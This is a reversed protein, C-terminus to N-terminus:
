TSNLLLIKGQTGYVDVECIEIRTADTAKSTVKIVRGVTGSRCPIHTTISGQMATNAIMGCTSRQTM